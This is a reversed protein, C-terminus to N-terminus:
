NYQKALTFLYRWGTLPHFARLSVLSYEFLEEQVFSPPTTALEKAIHLGQYDSSQSSM